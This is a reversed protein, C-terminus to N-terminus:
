DNLTYEEGRSNVKQGRKAGSSQEHGKDQLAQNARQENGQRRQGKGGRWHQRRGGLRPVVRDVLNGVVFAM